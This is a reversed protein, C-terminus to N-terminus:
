ILSTAFASRNRGTLAVSLDVVTQSMNSIPTYPKDRWKGESPSARDVSELNVDRCAYLYAMTFGAEDTIEFRDYTFFAM